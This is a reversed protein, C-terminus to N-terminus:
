ILRRASRRLFWEAIGLSAMALLAAAATLSWMRAEDGSEFARYIALPLTETLGPIFGAVMVTAGFEGLARGFGLVVGALVGRRALPLSVRLFRRWPSSGLGEAADELARPVEEFGTRICRVMLPFAMVAVALVVAKSTFVVELGLWDGLLRGVPGRRGFVKLLLLGTVVPPLVLPLAVLTEVLPKARWTRRALLWGIWLAAPLAVAVALAASGASFGILQLDAATM